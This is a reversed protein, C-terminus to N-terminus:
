GLTLPTLSWCHAWPPGQSCGLPPNLPPSPTPFADPWGPHQHHLALLISCCNQSQRPAQAHTQDLRLDM